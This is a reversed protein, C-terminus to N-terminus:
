SQWFGMPATSPSVSTTEVCFSYRFIYFLNTACIGVKNPACLKFALLLAICEVSNPGRDVYDSFNPQFMFRDFFKGGLFLYQQQGPLGMSLFIRQLDFFQGHLDGLIKVPIPVEILPGSAGDSQQCMTLKAVEILEILEEAGEGYDVVKRYKLHKNIFECLDLPMIFVFRRAALSSIFFNNLNTSISYIQMKAFLNRKILVRFLDRIVKFYADVYFKACGSSQKLWYSCKQSFIQM